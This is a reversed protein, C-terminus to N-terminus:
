INYAKICNLGFFQDLENKNFNKFYKEVISIVQNYEAAVLCVPWDSGFM